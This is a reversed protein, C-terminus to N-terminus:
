RICRSLPATSSLSLHTTQDASFALMMKDSDQYTAGSLITGGIGTQKHFAQRAAATTNGCTCRPVACPVCWSLRASRHSGGSAVVESGEGYGAVHLTATLLLRRRSGGPWNRRRGVLYSCDYLCARRTPSKTGWPVRAKKKKKKKRKDCASRACSFRDSLLLIPQSQTTPASRLRDPGLM